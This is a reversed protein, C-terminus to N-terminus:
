QADLTKDWKENWDNMIDDFSEGTKGLAADVIRQKEKELSYLGVESENSITDFKDINEDTAPNDVIMTVNTFDALTDPLPDDKKISISGESLAFGSEDLMYDIWARAAEKNESNKNIAYCYDAGATAYQKGDINYPFAMYGIDDAHDGAAQMQSIAWSGLVMCGIEGNNIMGKCSEWDSTVPDSECLGKNCIDYLLKYLTYHSKGESFPDKETIIGNNHYDADGTLSGWAHDEWATLAWADHYNTYYPIADTNDKIKQLDELFEDPTQPLTEIGADAFVKKNYVVGQANATSALGYVTDGKAKASLYAVDYKESLEEKTGLPEFFTDFDKSGVANPIMLVDGYETTQLRIAIDQEYDKLAEFEVTVDPYKAEFAEKYEAFKTDVLDTRHTIVTITGSIDSAATDGEADATDTTDAETTDAAETSAANDTSGASNASNSGSNDSGCGALFACAMIATLVVSLIKKKM